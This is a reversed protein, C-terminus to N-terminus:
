GSQLSLRAHSRGIQGKNAETVNASVGLAALFAIWDSVEVGIPHAVSAILFGVAALAAGVVLATDLASM